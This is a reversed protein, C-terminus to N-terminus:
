DSHQTRDLVGARICSGPRRVGFPVKRPREHRARRGRTSTASVKIAKEFLERARRQESGSTLCTVCCRLWRRGVSCPAGRVAAARWPAVVGQGRLVAAALPGASAEGNVALALEQSGDSPPSKSPGASWSGRCSGRRVRTSRECSWSEHQTRSPNARNPSIRIQRPGLSTQPM